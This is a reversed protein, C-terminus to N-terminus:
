SNRNGSSLIFEGKGSIMVTCNEPIYVSDGMKANILGEEYKLAIDGELVLLSVFHPLNIGLGGDLKVSKVSFYECEALSRISGFSHQTVEGVAGYPITPKETKTVDLAKKVHLERPKGDAGLRGYDSVRYTTNSNQQIEAILIGKGIAHLTGAEIFFLDGKSVPVYNMVEDLTNETIRKEFEEKSIESKFGYILQAGEECDVVYWMETKGPEGEAKIAYSDAPHVQVSLKDKADILKILIPFHDGKGGFGKLAEDLTKGKLEGNLVTNTGDRHSALMWGEAAINKDTEFGFEEILRRGGWLYDKIVPKLLLPYKKM